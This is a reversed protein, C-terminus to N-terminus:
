RHKKPGSGNPRRPPRPPKRGKQRGERRSVRDLLGRLKEHSGDELLWSMAESLLAESVKQKALRRYFVQLFPIGDFCELARVYDIFRVLAGWDELAHEELSSMAVYSEHAKHWHQQVFSLFGSNLHITSLVQRSVPIQRGQLGKVVERARDTLDVAAQIDGLLVRARALGTYVGAFEAFYCMAQEAFVVRQELIHREPMETMPFFLPTVCCLMDFERINARPPKDIPFEHSLSADVKRLIASADEYNKWAFCHTAVFLLLLDHLTRAQLRHLDRLCTVRHQSRAALIALTNQLSTKLFPQAEKKTSIRLSIRHFAKQAKSEGSDELILLITFSYRKMYRQGRAEVQTARLPVFRLSVRSKIQGSAFLDKLILRTERWDSLNVKPGDYGLGVKTGRGTRLYLQTSALWIVLGLIPLATLTALKWWQVTLGHESKAVSPVVDLEILGAGLLFLCVPVVLAWKWDLWPGASTVLARISDIVKGM